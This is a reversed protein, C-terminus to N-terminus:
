FYKIRSFIDFMIRVFIKKTWVRLYSLPFRLLSLGETELNILM